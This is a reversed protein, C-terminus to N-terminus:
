AYMRRYYEAQYEIDYTVDIWAPDPNDDRELRVLMGSEAYLYLRENPRLIVPMRAQVRAITNLLEQSM